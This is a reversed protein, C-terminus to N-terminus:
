WTWGAWRLPWSPRTCWTSVHVAALDADGDLCDGGQESGAQLQRSIGANHDGIDIGASGGFRSAHADLVDDRAHVARRHVAHGGKAKVHHEVTRAVRNVHFNQASISGDGEVYEDLLLGVGNVLEGREGIWLFTAHAREANNAELNVRLNGAFDGSEAIGEANEHQGTRRSRGGFHREDGTVDDAREVARGHRREVAQAASEFVQLGASGGSQLNLAFFAEHENGESEIAWSGRAERGFGDCRSKLRMLIYGHNFVALRAESDADTRTDDRTDRKSEM